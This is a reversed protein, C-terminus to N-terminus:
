EGGLALLPVTTRPELEFMPWVPLTSGCNHWLAQAPRQKVDFFLPPHRSQTSLDLMSCKLAEGVAGAQRGAVLGNGVGGAHM